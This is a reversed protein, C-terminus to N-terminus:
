DRPVFSPNDKSQVLHFRHDNTIGKQIPKQSQTFVRKQLRRLLKAAESDGKIVSETKKKVEKKSEGASPEDKDSHKAVKTPQVPQDQIANQAKKKRGKRTKGSSQNSQDSQETSWLHNGPISGQVSGSPVVIAQMSTESQQGQDQTIGPHSPPFPVSNLAPAGSPFMPGFGTVPAASPPAVPGHPMQYFQGVPVYTGWYGSYGHDQTTRACPTGMPGSRLAAGWATWMAGSNPRPVASPPLVHGDDPMPYIDRSQNAVPFFSDRDVPLSDPTHDQIVPFKYQTPNAVLKPQTHSPPPSSFRQRFSPCPRPLSQRDSDQEDQTFVMPGRVPSDDRVGRSVSPSQCQVERPPSPTAFLGRESTEQAPCNSRDRQSDEDLADWGSATWRPTCPPSFRPGPSNDSYNQNENPSPSAM